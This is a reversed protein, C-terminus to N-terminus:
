GAMLKNLKPKSRHIPYINFILCCRRSKIAIISTGFVGNYLLSLQRFHFYSSKFKYFFVFTFIRTKGNNHLFSSLVSTLICIRDPPEHRAVFTLHIFTSKSLPNKSRFYFVRRRGFSLLSQTTPVHIDRSCLM